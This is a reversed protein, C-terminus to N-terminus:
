AEEPFNLVAFEGHHKAALLDYARAAEEITDFRASSHRKRGLVLQARWKGRSRDKFVGRFGATNPLVRNILNQTVTAARLNCRRNDLGNRNIHDVYVEDPGGFIVRHMYLLGDRTPKAGGRGSIAYFTKKGPNARWPRGEVLPFDEEDVLAYMGRSLPM